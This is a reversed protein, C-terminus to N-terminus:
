NWITASIHLSYDMFSFALLNEPRPFYLGRMAGVLRLVKAFESTRASRLAVCLGSRYRMGVIKAKVDSEPASSVARVAFGAFPASV